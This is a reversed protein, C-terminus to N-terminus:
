GKVRVVYHAGQEDEWAQTGIAMDPNRDKLERVLAQATSRATKLGGEIPGDGPTGGEKLIKEAGKLEDESFSFKSRKRNVPVTLSRVAM